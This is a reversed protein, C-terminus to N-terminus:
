IGLDKRGAWAKELQQGVGSRGAGEPGGAPETKGYKLGWWTRKREDEIM